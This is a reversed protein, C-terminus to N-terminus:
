SHRKLRLKVDDLPPPSAMLQWGRDGLAYVGDRERLVIRPRGDDVTTALPADSLPWEGYCGLRAIARRM